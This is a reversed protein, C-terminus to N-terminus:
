GICRVGWGDIDTGRTNGSIGYALGLGLVGFSAKRGSAILIWLGEVRTAYDRSFGTRARLGSWELM